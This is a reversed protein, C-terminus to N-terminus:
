LHEANEKSLRHFFAAEAKEVCFSPDEEFTTQALEPGLAPIENDVLTEFQESAKSCESCSTLHEELRNREEATLNGTAALACLELFEEHPGMSWVEDNPNGERDVM